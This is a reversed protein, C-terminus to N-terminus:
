VTCGWYRRRSPIYPFTEMQICLPLNVKWVEYKEVLAYMIWLCTCMDNRAKMSMRPTHIFSHTLSDSHICTHTHACSHSSTYVYTNRYLFLSIFSYFHPPPLNFSVEIRYLISTLPQVVYIYLYYYVYVIFCHCCLTSLIEKWSIGMIKLSHWRKEWSPGEGRVHWVVSCFISVNLHIDGM